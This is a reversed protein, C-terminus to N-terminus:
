FWNQDGALEQHSGVWSLLPGQCICLTYMVFVHMNSIYWFLLFLFPFNCFHLLSFIFLKFMERANKTVHKFIGVIVNCRSMANV